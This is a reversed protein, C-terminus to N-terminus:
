RPRGLSHGRRGHGVSHPGARLLRQAGGATASFCLYLAGLAALDAALIQWGYWHSDPSPAAASAGSGSGQATAPSTFIDARATVTPLLVALVM